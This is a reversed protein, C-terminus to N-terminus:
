REVPAETEEPLMGTVKVLLLDLDGASGVTTHGTFVCGGDSTARVTYGMSQGARTPLLREYWALRGDTAGVLAATEKRELVWEPLEESEIEALIEFIRDDASELVDHLPVVRRKRRHARIKNKAIGCLWTHLSSRGDFSDLRQLAVLFSDQVLDEATARDGGVRYHIFEYLADVHDRFFATAAETDGGLIRDRM